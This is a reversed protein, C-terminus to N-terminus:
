QLEIKNISTTNQKRIEGMLERFLRFKNFRIYKKIKWTLFFCM